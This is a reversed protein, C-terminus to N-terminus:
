PLSCDSIFAGNPQLLSSCSSTIKQYISSEGPSGPVALFLVNVNLSIKLFKQPLFLNLFVYRFNLRCPSPVLQGRVGQLASLSLTLGTMPFKLKGSEM